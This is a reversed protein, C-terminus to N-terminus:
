VTVRFDIEPVQLDNLLHLLFQHLLYFLLYNAVIENWIFRDHLIDNQAIL